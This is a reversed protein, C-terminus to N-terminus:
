CLQDKSSTPSWQEKMPLLDSCFLLLLFASLDISSSVPVPSKRELLFSTRRHSVGRRLVQGLEISVIDTRLVFFFFTNIKSKVSTIFVTHSLLQQIYQFFFFNRRCKENDPIEYLFIRLNNLSHLCFAVKDAVMGHVM